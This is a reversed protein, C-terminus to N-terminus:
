PCRSRVRAALSSSPFEAVFADAVGRARARDGLACLADVRAALSEPRLMGRSFRQAYRDLEALAAAADGRALAARAAAILSIEDTLTNARQPAPEERPASNTTTTPADTSQAPQAQETQSPASQVTERVAMLRAARTPRAPAPTVPVAPAATMTPAAVIPTAITGSNVAGTSQTPEARRAPEAAARQAVPLAVTRPAVPTTPPTGRHRMAITTSATVAGVLAIAGLVKAVLATTVTATTSAAATATATSSTTAIVAGAAAGSAIRAFLQKRVRERDEASPQEASQAADILTDLNSTPDLDRM